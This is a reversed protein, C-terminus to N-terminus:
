RVRGCGTRAARGATCRVGGPKHWGAGWRRRGPEYSPGYPWYRPTSEYPVAYSYPVGCYPGGYCSGTGPFVRISPPPPATYFHIHPPRATYFHIDRAPQIGAESVVPRSGASIPASAAEGCPVLIAAIVLLARRPLDRRPVARQEDRM